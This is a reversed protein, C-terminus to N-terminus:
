DIEYITRQTINNISHRVNCSKNLTDVCLVCSVFTYSLFQMHIIVIGYCRGIGCSQLMLINPMLVFLCPHQGWSNGAPSPQRLSICLSTCHTAHPQITPLRVCCHRQGHAGKGEARSANTALCYTKVLKRHLPSVVLGICYCDAIADFNLVILEICYYKISAGM